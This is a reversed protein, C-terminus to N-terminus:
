KRMEYFMNVYTIRLEEDPTMKEIFSLAELSVEYRKQEGADRMAKYREAFINIEKDMIDKLTTM